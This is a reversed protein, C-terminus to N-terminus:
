WSGPEFRIRPILLADPKKKLMSEIEADANTFDYRSPDDWKVKSYDVGEPPPFAQFGISFSFIPFGSKIGDEADQVRCWYVMPSQIKGNIFLAPLGNNRKVECPITYQSYAPTTFVKTICAIILLIVVGPEMIIKNLYPYSQVGQNLEKEYTFKKSAM